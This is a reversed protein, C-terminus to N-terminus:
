KRKKKGDWALQFTAVNDKISVVVAGFANSKDGHQVLKVVEGVELPESVVAELLGNNAQNSFNVDITKM